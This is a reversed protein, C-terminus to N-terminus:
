GCINAGVSLSPFVACVLRPNLYTISFFNSVESDDRLCLINVLFKLDFLLQLSRSQSIKNSGTTSLLDEYSKLIGDGLRQV